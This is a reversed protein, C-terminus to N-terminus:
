FGVNARFSVDDMIGVSVRVRFELGVGGWVLCVGNHKLIERGLDQGQDGKKLAM